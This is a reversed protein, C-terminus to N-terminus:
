SSKFLLFDERGREGGEREEEEEEERVKAGLTENIGTLHMSVTNLVRGCSLLGM